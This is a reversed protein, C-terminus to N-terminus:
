APDAAVVTVTVPEVMGNCSFTITHDGVTRFEYHYAYYHIVEPIGNNYVKTIDGTGNITKDQTSDTANVQVVADKIPRGMDDRCVLGLEIYNSDDVVEKQATYKRGLGKSPFPNIIKISAMSVKPQIVPLPEQVAQTQTPAPAPATQPQPQPVSQAIVTPMPQVVTQVPPTTSAQVELKVIQQELRGVERGLEYATVIPDNKAVPTTTVPKTTTSVQETITPTLANLPGTVQTTPDIPASFATTILMAIAAVIGKLTLIINEM